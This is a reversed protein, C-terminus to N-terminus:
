EGQAERHQLVEVFRKTTKWPNTIATGIVIAYAGHQKARQVDRLEFYRGEAVVPCSLSEALRFVLDVDPEVRQTSYDTYGSLTTAVLDAGCREAYVGEEYTSVDAMVLCGAQHIRHIIDPLSEGYPRPRKTSDLAVIHAGAAIIQQAERWTPTIYVDSDEYERKYLGIVPVSVRQRIAAVYAPGNTRIGVAGGKEAAQAMRSMIATDALPNGDEAQCSVIIGGSLNRIVSPITM